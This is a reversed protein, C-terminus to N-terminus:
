SKDRLGTEDESWNERDVPAHVDLKLLEKKILQLSAFTSPNAGSILIATQVITLIRKLEKDIIERDDMLQQNMGAADNLQSGCLRLESKTEQHARIENTLLSRSHKLSEKLTEITEELQAKTPM